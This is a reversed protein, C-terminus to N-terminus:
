VKWAAQALSLVRPLPKLLELLLALLGKIAQPPVLHRLGKTDPPLSMPLLLVLLALCPVGLLMLVTVALLVALVAALAVL